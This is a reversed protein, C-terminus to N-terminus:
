NCEHRDSWHVKYQLDRPALITRNLEDLFARKPTTHLDMALAIGDSGLYDLVKKQIVPHNHGYNLAGCGSLLDIHVHGKEDWLLANRARTFVSPIRRCYSRVESELEFPSIM